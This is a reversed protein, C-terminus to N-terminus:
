KIALESLIEWMSEIIDKFPATLPLPSPDNVRSQKSSMAKFPATLPLLSPTNVRSQRSSMTYRAVAQARFPKKVLEASRNDCRRQRRGPPLLLAVDGRHGEHSPNATARDFNTRVENGRDM